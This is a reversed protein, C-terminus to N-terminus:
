KPMLVELTEFAVNSKNFKAKSLYDFHKMVFFRIGRGAEVFNNNGVYMLAHQSKIKGKSDKKKYRVVCGPKLVGKVIKKGKWIIECHSIEPFEENVGALVKVKIGLAAYLVTDLNYGCDSYAIKSTYGRENLAEKMKVTPAGTSYDYKETKTNLPWALEIAKECVLDSNTKSVEPEVPTTPTDEEKKILDKKTKNVDVSGSIGSVKGSSSYQWLDYDMSAKSAYQALWILYKKKLTDLNLYNSFTSYNAYLMPVYGNDKVVDCFASVIETCKSKGLSKAKSSSLRGGFEWDCVVPLTISSKYPKLIDCMYQAEKKAEVVSIAQSYHYAGVAIKNKVAEKLNTVFTSDKSMSFTSQSTYSTRLIAGDVKDKKVKAWDITHQWYSVDVIKYEKTEVSPTTKKEKYSNAHNYSKTSYVGDKVLGEAVQFKELAEETAAGFDRDIKLKIDLYWNLFRQLYEVQIGSSGRKLTPKPITGSYKGTPKPVPKEEKKKALGVWVKPILGKMQTEYTYWGTHNRGGSDRTYLKHKGNEVKYNTVAVYHGSTTWTIGGRSGSRFLFVACYGKDLYKWVNTMSSSVNIEKVDTLGFHKMAAPIGAWATGNNRIAYGKSKMFKAVDWPNTKGDVAYALMAVSTPGCGATAMSSSGNYNKSGWRSDAQKYTIYGM